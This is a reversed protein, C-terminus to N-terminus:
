MEEVLLPFYVMWPDKMDGPMDPRPLPSAPYGASSSKEGGKMAEIMEPTMGLTGERQRKYFEEELRESEELKKELETKPHIGRSDPSGYGELRRRYQEKLTETRKRAAEARAAAARGLAKQIGVETRRKQSYDDVMRQHLQGTTLNSKPMQDAEHQLRRFDAENHLRQTEEAPSETQGTLQNFFWSFPEKWFKAGPKSVIDEGLNKGIKYSFYATGASLAVTAAKLLVGGSIAKLTLGGLLM